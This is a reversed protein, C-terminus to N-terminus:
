QKWQNFTLVEEQPFGESAPFDRLYSRYAAYEQKEQSSFVSDALQTFDTECLFADRCCRRQAALEQGTKEPFCDALYWVGTDTRLVDLQTMGISQYFLDNDGLGVACEKTEQNIIKAYKLM